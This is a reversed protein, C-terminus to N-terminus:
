AASEARGTPSQRRTQQQRARRRNEAATVLELHDPNVCRRHLCGSGGECAQDKSHCVHDLQLGAEPHPLYGYRLFWAIQHGSYKRQRVEGDKRTTMNMQSYGDVDPEATM